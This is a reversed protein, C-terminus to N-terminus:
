VLCGSEGCFHAAKLVPSNGNSCVCAEWWVRKSLDQCVTVDRIANGGETEASSENPGSGSRWSISQPKNAFASSSTMLGEDRRGRAVWVSSM